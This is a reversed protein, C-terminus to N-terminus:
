PGGGCGGRIGCGGKQPATIATPENSACNFGSCGDSLVPGAGICFVLAWAALMMRM